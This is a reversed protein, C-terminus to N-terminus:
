RKEKEKEKENEKGEMGAVMGDIRWFTSVGEIFCSGVWMWWVWSGGEVQHRRLRTRAMWVAEAGHIGLMTWILWPQITWCFGAFNPVYGLGLTEYFMSGPIFNDRRSFSLFTLIEVLFAVRELARQPPLYTKIKTDSLNLGQLCAQHMAIMRQRAESPPSLSSLPPSLPIYYRKGASTLILSDLNLTTLTTTSPNATRSPINCYYRLFLSLSDRHSTNM